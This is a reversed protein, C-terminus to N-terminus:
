LRAALADLLRTPLLRKLGGMVHTPTTVYYRPAPSRAELARILKATVASAPLEFRDKKASPAYLRKLLVREYAERHPSARWDIWREFRPVAKARFPTAIPGPEILVVAVGTGRLELRLTDTIGELAFKTAIYAGRWPLAAFGLVSSNMVVRGAGHARMAPLIRNTLDM